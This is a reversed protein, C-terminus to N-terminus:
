LVSDTTEDLIDIAIDIEEKTINVPPAFRIVSEGCGLLLLGKKLAEESINNRIKPAPEKTDKNKVYEVGQALGIGRVDGMVEYKEQLESLRKHLYEGMKKANDLNDKVIKIVELGAACAIPNGAFTSAHRGLEEYDMEANFIVAGIPVGGGLAKAAQITDPEIGFNEIAWFKGTRGLGMQVEDDALMINYEDTLKRLEKFFNKPPVVYGGEGQIPELFIGGLDQPPCYPFVEEELYELVRNTLEEPEEYGDIRWTNRYPNPYPIHETEPLLPHFGLQQEPKSATMTLASQTRGHFAKTFAIFRHRGTYKKILKMAAENSEAGSNSWGVKKKGEKTNAILEKAFENAVEYYYDCHAFHTFKEAQEKIANVVKPHSYGVNQVAVGSSFDYFTNGDVDEIVIGKGRKIVSPIDQTTTLINEDNSEIIKKALPGPIETKVKPKKM